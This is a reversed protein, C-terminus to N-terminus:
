GKGRRPRPGPRTQSKLIAQEIQQHSEARRKRREIEASSLAVPAPRPTPRLARAKPEVAPWTHDPPDDLVEADVIDDGGDVRYDVNVVRRQMGLEWEPIVVEVSSHQTGTLSARDLVDRAAALRVQPALKLDLMITLIQVVAIDSAEDLRQQARRRVQPARAGHSACVTTGHSAPRKCRDGNKRHAVCQNFPRNISLDSM